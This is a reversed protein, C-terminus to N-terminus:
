GAYWVVEGGSEIGLTRRVFRRAKLRCDSDDALNITYNTVAGRWGDLSGYRVGIADNPAIPLLPCGIEVYDIQASNDALTGEAKSVLNALREEVTGGALETVTGALTKERGARNPLSAPHESDVNSAWASLSESETEYSLRCVNPTFAWENTYPVEPLMVSRQGPEFSFVTDRESPDEYRTMMVNGYADAYAASFGAASLLWNVISLYNAEEATFTHQSSIAYDSQDPANVPLGASVCLEVAKDVAITGEAVTFPAGYERDKLVRLVGDLTASGSLMTEGIIDEMVTPATAEVALTAIATPELVEGSEDEFTYYVRLLRSADPPEGEFDISGSAKTDTFASLELSGGVVSDYEGMEAMTAFDVYRFIYRGKRRGLWDVM